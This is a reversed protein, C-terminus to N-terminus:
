NTFVQMKGGNYVYAHGEDMLTQNLCWELGDADKVYVEGLVRGYKGTGHSKLRCLGSDCSVDELIEKTRAKAALGKKKEAKNRTRSEWTDVGKLRIRRKIWTDFGLDIMADFTDGDVVRVLKARYIYKDM